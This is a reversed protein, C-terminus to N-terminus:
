SSIHVYSMVLIGTQTLAQIARELQNNKVLIYDTAFTSLAFISVGAKALPLTIAALVGIMAFDLPGQVQLACWGREAKIEPPVFREACVISLEDRTRILALLDGPTAWDPFEADVPLHCVAFREALTVLPPMSSIPLDINESM